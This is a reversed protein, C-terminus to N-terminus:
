NHNAQYARHLAPIVTPSSLLARPRAIQMQTPRRRMEGERDGPRPSPESRGGHRARRGRRGGGGPQEPRAAVVVRRPGAARARGGRATKKTRRGRRCRRRRRGCPYEPRCHAVPPSPSTRRPRPTAGSEAPRRPPEPPSACCFHCIGHVHIAVGRPRTATAGVGDWRGPPRRRDRRGGRVAGCSRPFPRRSALSTGTATGEGRCTTRRADSARPCAM